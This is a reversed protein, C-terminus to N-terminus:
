HNRFDIVLRPPEQLTSVRFDVRDSLGVVWTLVAEFDGTRVVERVLSTGAADGKVRRPAFAPTQNEFDYSSAPELRIEAIAEGEVVVRRGSADETVPRPVYRVRYGPLADRFELVVRDFGEHRGLELRTLLATGEGSPAGSVQETGAGPLPDIGGADSQEDASPDGDPDGSGNGGSPSPTAERPAAAQEGESGGCAAIVGLVLVATIWAVMRVM